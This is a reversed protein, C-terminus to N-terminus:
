SRFAGFRSLHGLPRLHLDLFDHTRAVTGLTRIGGEGCFNVVARSMGQRDISNFKRVRPIYDLALSLNEVLSSPTVRTRFVLTRVTTSDDVSHFIGRLYVARAGALPARLACHAPPPLGVALDSTTACLGMRAGHRFAGYRSLHGLPRLHM